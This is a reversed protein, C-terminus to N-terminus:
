DFVSFHDEMEKNLMRQYSKDVLNNNDIQSNVSVYSLFNPMIDINQDALHSTTFVEILRNPNTRALAEQLESNSLHELFVEQVEKDRFTYDDLFSEGPLLINGNSYFYSKLYLSMLISNSVIPSKLMIFKAHVSKELLNSDIITPRIIYNSINPWAEKSDNIIILKSENTFANISTPFLDAKKLIFSADANKSDISFNNVGERTINIADHWIGGYDGKAYKLQLPTQLFRLDIFKSQVYSPIDFSVKPYPKSTLIYALYYVKLTKKCKVEYFFTAHPGYKHYFLKFKSASDSVRKLELYAELILKYDSKGQSTGIMEHVTKSLKGFKRRKVFLM